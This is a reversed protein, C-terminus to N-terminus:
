KMHPILIRIPRGDTPPWPLSPGETGPYNPSFTQYLTKDAFRHQPICLINETSGGLVVTDYSFCRRNLIPYYWQRHMIPPLDAAAERRDPNRRNRWINLGSPLSPIVSFRTIQGVVNPMLPAIPQQVVSPEPAAYQLGPGAGAPVSGGSAIGGGCAALLVSLGVIAVFNACCPPHNWRSSLTTLSVSMPALARRM